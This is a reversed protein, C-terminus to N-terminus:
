LGRLKNQKKIILVSVVVKKKWITFLMIDQDETDDKKAFTERVSLALRAFLVESRHESSQQDFDQSDCATWGSNTTTKGTGETVFPYYRSIPWSGKRWIRRSMCSSVPLRSLATPIAVGLPRLQLGPLTLFKKEEERLGSRNQPGGLRRSLPYRPSKGHLYLQQPTFSVMWM